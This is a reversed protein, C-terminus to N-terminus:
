HHHIQAKGPSVRLRDMKVHRKLSPLAHREMATMEYAVLCHRLLPKLAPSSLPSASMHCQKHARLIRHLGTGSLSWWSWLYPAALVRQRENRTGCPVSRSHLAASLKLSRPRFNPIKPWPLSLMHIRHLSATTTASIELVM